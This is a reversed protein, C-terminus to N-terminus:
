SKELIEKFKAIETIPEKCTFNECIYATAEGDIKEMSSTFKIIDELEERNDEDKVIVVSNSLFIERLIDIFGEIESEKGVLVIEKGKSWWSQLGSLFMTFQGPNNSVKGSFAKIMKEITEEYKEEGTIKELLVLDMLAISNGSPYAGDYVEKKNFPLEDHDKRSIFFGGNEEDWFKKLMVDTLDIARKLYEVKFTTQYLNLLGWILFSHDDLGGKVSVEGDIYAHYLDGDKIMEQLIFSATEEALDLYRDKDFVFGARSLATIMLGNWDTLIKNDVNPKERELRSEFLKRKMNEVDKLSIKRSKVFEKVTDELYLVNEGTKKNSAEDRFNGDEKVNFMEVFVDSKEGLIDEIEKKRWTYYAGERGSSEADESSFFGGKESRLDRDLYDIVEDVTESYLEKETIQWAETYALLIMAQDYLMKEFHPLIWERDTAYRHFGYGLHDYIGGKLMEKLTKQVMEIAEDEGEKEDYRLLFLLNQPSPFKQTNGFGGYEDDYASSLYDFGDDLLSEDMYKEAGLYEGELNEIVLKGREILRERDKEWLEGIKPILEMLGSMGRKGHKPIYTAAYFPIKEPTMLITLPWGGRGTMSRAVDMYVSDIDPREEKDVKISVFTENMLGAVEEDEFSERKMVHCWHCSSYGISLFIPKDEEKAKQFAEECWPYWDVPNDAHEKL